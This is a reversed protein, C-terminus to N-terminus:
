VWRGQMVPGARCLLHSDSNEEAGVALVPFRRRQRGCSLTVPLPLCLYSPSPCCSLCSPSINFKVARPRLILWGQLQRVAPPPPIPPQTAPHPQRSIGLLCPFPETHKGGPSEAQDLKSLRNSSSRQHRCGSKLGPTKTQRIDYDGM